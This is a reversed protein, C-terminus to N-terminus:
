FFSPEITENVEKAEQELYDKEMSDAQEGSVTELNLDFKDKLMRYDFCMCRDFKSIEVAKTHEKDVQRYEVKPKGDEYQKWRECNKQGLYATSTTLYYRISDKSMVSEGQQKAMRKYQGIFHNLRIMLIPTDTNYEKAVQDTKLKRLYRIKFDADAHIMGEENLYTM